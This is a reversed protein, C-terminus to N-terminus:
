FGIYCEQNIEAMADVKTPDNSEHPTEPYNLFIARPSCREKMEPFVKTFNQCSCEYEGDNTTFHYHNHNADGIMTPPYQTPTTADYLQEDAPRNAIKM